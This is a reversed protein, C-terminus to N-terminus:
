PQVYVGIQNNTVQDVNSRVGQIQDDLWETYKDMAKRLADDSNVIYHVDMGQLSHGLMTDRYVKDVGAEVMDTKVTRRLDHMTVGNEAKQGQERGNADNFNL